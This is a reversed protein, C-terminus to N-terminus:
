KKKALLLAPKRLSQILRKRQTFLQLLQRRGLRDHTATFVDPCLRHRPPHTKTQSARLIPAVAQRAPGFGSGLRLNVIFIFHAPTMGAVVVANSACSLM